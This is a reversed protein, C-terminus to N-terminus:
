RGNHLRRACPGSDGLYTATTRTLGAFVRL